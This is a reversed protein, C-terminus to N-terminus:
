RGPRRRNLSAGLAAQTMTLEVITHLDAGDREIGAQPACASRSSSIAPRAASSGRMVKAACASASGTTSGAPIDIELDRDHLTRRDRRVDDCPTEVVRGLGDCRPCAGTRVFQGFVSQSVQQVRGAGNCMDCTVPATGPAAGNGGCTECTRAVRTSM